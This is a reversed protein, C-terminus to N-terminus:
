AEAQEAGSKIEKERFWGIAGIYSLLGLCFVGFLAVLPYKIPLEYRVYIGLERLLPWMDIQLGFWFWVFLSTETTCGNCESISVVILSLLLALVMLVAGVRKNRPLM